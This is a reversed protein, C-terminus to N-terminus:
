GGRRIIGSGRRGEEQAQQAMVWAVGQGMWRNRTSCVLCDLQLGLLFGSCVSCGLQLGLLFGSCGLCGLQVRLLFGSCTSRGEPPVPWQGILVGRGMKAGRAGVMQRTGCDGGM